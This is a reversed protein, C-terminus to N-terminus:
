NMLRLQKYFDSELDCIIAHPPKLIQYALTVGQKLIQYKEVQGDTKQAVDLIKKLKAVNRDKKPLNIPLEDKMPWQQGCAQCLCDFHYRSHIATREDQPVNQFVGSYGDTIEEGKRIPRTSFAKVTNQELNWIRGYNSDCSHNIMALKPNIAAGISLTEIKSTSIQLFNIPM